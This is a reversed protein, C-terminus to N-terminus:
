AVGLAFVVNLFRSIAKVELHSSDSVGVISDLDNDSIPEENEM